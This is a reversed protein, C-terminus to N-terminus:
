FSKTIYLNNLKFSTQDRSGQMLDEFDRFEWPPFATLIISPEGNTNECVKSRNQHTQIM